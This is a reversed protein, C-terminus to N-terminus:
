PAVVGMWPVQTFLATSAFALEEPFGDDADAAGALERVERVAEALSAGAGLPHLLRSRGLSARYAALGTAIVASTRGLEFLDAAFLNRLILMRAAETETPPRPVDLVVIPGWPTDAELLGNLWKATIQQGGSRSYSEEYFAEDGFDLSPTGTAVTIGASLHLVAPRTGPGAFQTVADRLRAPTVGELTQVAFGASRYDYAVDSGETSQGRAVIRQHMFGLTAVLALPRVGPERDALSRRIASGTTSDIDGTAPLGSSRQFVKLAGRSAPGMIGDVPLDRGLLANLAAQVVRAEGSRAGPRGPGRFLATVLPDLSVLESQPDRMLEWPV